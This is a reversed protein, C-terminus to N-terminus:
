LAIKGEDVLQLVVSAVVSKSMSAVRFRHDPTMPEGTARDAVGRAILVTQDGSLVAVSVGPVGAAILRDARAELDAIQSADLRPATPGGAAGPSDQVAPDASAEDPASIMTGDRSDDTCAFLPGLALLFSLSPAFFRSGTM